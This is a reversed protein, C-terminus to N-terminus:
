AWAHGPLEDTLQGKDAKAVAYRAIGQPGGHALRALVFRSSLAKEEAGWSRLNFTARRQSAEQVGALCCPDGEKTTRSQTGLVWAVHFHISTSLSAM